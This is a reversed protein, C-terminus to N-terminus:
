DGDEPDDHLVRRLAEGLDRISAPKMIYEQIGLKESDERTFTISFGTTLIMPLRPNLELLEKSLEAGTGRPMTQDTIVVDFRDPCARFLEMAEIGGTAITVEYGLRELMAKGMACIEEEDDVFLVHEDGTPIPRDSIEEDEEIGATCPLFVSFTSGKGPESYVIIEGGHSVIIGHVVSLGLGTGEEGDKTTFFPEFIKGMTERKMGHGTDSVSLRIHSGEQLNPHRRALELDVDFPELRIDLLGRGEDMAHYGNICLNMLVQHMQTPDAMVAGCEPDIHQKMELTSPLSSRLLKLVESVIFQIQIPKREQDVQRSFTLIQQILEKARHAAMDIHELYGHIPSDEPVDEMIMETYGLIPSLVNNFDHAIGGALTGITELKQSQRLQAELRASAAKARKSETIDGLFDLSAPGEEWTIAVSNREIWKTSGDKNVIRFVSHYGPKQGPSRNQQEAVATRDDPHVFEIFDSTALEEM